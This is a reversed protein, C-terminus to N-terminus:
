HDKQPPVKKNYRPESCRVVAAFSAIAANAVGPELGDVTEGATEGSPKVLARSRAKDARLSNSSASAARRASSTRFLATATRWASTHRLVTDSVSHYTVAHTHTNGTHNSPLALLCCHSQRGRFHSSESSVTPLPPPLRLPSCRHAVETAPSDMLGGYPRARWLM